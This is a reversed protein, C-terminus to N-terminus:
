KFIFIKPPSTAALYTGSATKEAIVSCSVEAAPQYSIAVTLVKTRPTYSCGAGTVVFSISGNGSGGATNLTIGRGGKAINSANSNSIVLPGQPQLILVSKAVRSATAYIADGAQSATISCTGVTLVNIAGAIVSCISTTNSSFSIPYLSGASSTAVLPQPVSTLSM